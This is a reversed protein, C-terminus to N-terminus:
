KIYVLKQKSIKLGSQLTILYVGASLNQPSWNLTYSGRLAYTSLITEILQGRLNYVKLSVQGDEPLTYNLTVSPNFPNPYVKYLGFEVPMQVAGAAVKVEVEKHWTVKGNYAVDALRYRYTVGPQVSKDTFQYAHKASTSGHGELSKDTVYSAIQSWQDPLDHNAGVTRRQIIFGLNETESETAWKLIVFGSQCEATFTTLEVPLSADVNEKLRPYNTGIMEWTNTFDWGANTFTTLTKMETTTKGTCGSTPSSTSRGSTLTDWFCDYTNGDAGGAGGRGVFGGVYGVTGETIVPGTSYSDEIYGRILICGSLGGIRSPYTLGDQPNSVSVAPDNDVTVTGRAYSDYIKGKQNCGTLGGFKDAGSGSKRSWSVDTYAYCKRIVPHNDNNSPNDVYSNNSGVLGGTAGDGVVTGSTAACKEILTNNNGTVRGVLSGSGRGGKVDVNSLIVNKISVGDGDYGVHGFLGVNNTNPRNIYLGSITYGQGDYSGTFKTGDNGIPTWGQNSDWTSIAPSASGLDINATQVFYKDWSSSNQSIWYLNQWTAIQYPSSSSGDGSAPPDATQGLVLASAFLLSLMTIFLKKM